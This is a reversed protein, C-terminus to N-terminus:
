RDAGARGLEAGLEQERRRAADLRRAHMGLLAAVDGVEGVPRVPRAPSGFAIVGEPLDRTVVSGAGVVTGAGITVFPLVTVNCGIQAGAGIWPGLLREASAAQGPYLDNSFVVGPALFAGDELHSYQAVYCNTHVKVGNGLVCGYDIVSGSWVSVDDGLECGERVITHHGTQLRAGIRSGAYLVTGSRLRAGAGLQLVHAAGREPPYGIVAGDDARLDDGGLVRIDPVM